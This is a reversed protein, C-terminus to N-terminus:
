DTKKKCNSDFSPVFLRALSRVFARVCVRVGARGCAHECARVCSGFRVAFVVWFVRVDLWFPALISGLNTRSRGPRSQPSRPRAADRGSCGPLRRPVGFARLLCGVRRWFSGLDVWILYFPRGPTRSPAKRLWRKPCDNAHREWLSKRVIKPDTASPAVRLGSAM